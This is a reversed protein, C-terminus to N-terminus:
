SVSILIGSLTVLTPSPANWLLLKVLREIGSLIPYKPFKAIELLGPKM